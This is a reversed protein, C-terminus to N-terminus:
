NKEILRMIKEATEVPVSRLEVTAEEARVRIEGYIPGEEVRLASDKLEEETPAGGKILQLNEACKGAYDNSQNVIRRAIEFAAAIRIIKVDGLGKFQLFKELPQNAMGKFSGFKDLIEKAIQEASKLASVTIEHRKEGYRYPDVREGKETKPFDGSVRIRDKMHYSGSAFHISEEGKTANISVYSWDDNKEKELTFGLIESIRGILSKTKENRAREEEKERAMRAEYSEEVTTTEM